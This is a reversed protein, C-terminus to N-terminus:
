SLLCCIAALNPLSSDSVSISIGMLTQWLQSCETAQQKLAAAKPINQTSPSRAHCSIGYVRRQQMYPHLLCRSLKLWWHVAQQYFMDCFFGAGMPLPPLRFKPQKGVSVLDCTRSVGFCDATTMGAQVSCRYMLSRSACVHRAHM